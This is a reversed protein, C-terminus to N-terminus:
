DVRPGRLAQLEEQLVDAVREITMVSTDVVRIGLADAQGRLYVAWRDMRDGVLEPQGRSGRLREARVAPTCDLLLLRAHRIGDRALQPLIFSPRTQGELVALECGDPNAALRDIWRATTHEQWKEGSGWEREMEAPSPVGISDFFYCLVGPQRRSALARVAATKGSGSAGLVFLM